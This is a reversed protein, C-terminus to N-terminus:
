ERQERKIKGWGEQLVIKMEVIYYWDKCLSYQSKCPYMAAGGILPPPSFTYVSLVNKM